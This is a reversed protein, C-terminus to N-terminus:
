LTIAAFHLKHSATLVVTADASPTTEGNANTFTVKGHWTGVGFTGSGGGDSLTPASPAAVVARSYPAYTGPSAAVEGLVTGRAYTGDALAVDVTAANDPAIAPDLRGVAGFAAVVPRTM